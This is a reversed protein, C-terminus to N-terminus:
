AQEQERLVDETAGLLGSDEFFGCYGTKKVIFNAFSRSKLQIYLHSPM